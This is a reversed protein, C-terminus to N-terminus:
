SLDPRLRAAEGLYVHHLGSPDRETYVQVLVRVCRRPAGPVDAEVAGLLPVRDWGLERAATAPFAANLDPTVTFFVTVVDDLEFSNAEQLALLLRRTGELIAESTNEGVTTAGRIGRVRREAL